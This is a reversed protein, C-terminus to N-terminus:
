DYLLYRVRRSRFTALDDHYLAEMEPVTKGSLLAAAVKESTLLRDIAQTQWQDPYLARLQRAIELGCRVPRLQDRDTVLIHVGACLQGQYKSANPTFRVPVFRVGSLAAHNLVSALGAADIWPAGIVEFPTDTGRGVSLNTTELLGIGPYLLAQNLNRMNPSPNVWLLGTADFLERRRWHKTPIVQLDLDLQLEARFMRALEGTTMGHRVPLPHFGVFSQRGADLVPGAVVVGGIPNPRDLVVFRIKADAAAQMAHGMTSIYTYFRTGIDQIDFVLTDIGALAEVTPIRTKGYLSYIPLGTRPDRQDPIHSVDLRGAIGHEPSLLAVLQLNAARHLLEATSVGARNIGTQNTILGVRRGSLAAFQQQELVDIGTLVPQTAATDVAATARRRGAAPRSVIAATAVTGIRGALRNVKGKGDPHVRNSLFIVILDYGPDIWLATGTFGGHGFARASALESRNTSYGTQLDWGLGRFGSSVANRRTMRQVGARSLIRVAGFRGQNLMMQAYVAVDDVTSFLGAHGAIGGLRFARPDHVEGQMWHGNRRETPAARRRLDPSPLYGTERMGLPKFIHQHSFEHVNKGSVRRVLEGLVLFGVDTYIFRTGPEVIPKVAFIREWALKPGDDFDALPNDPILGGQHTLLEFVTIEEKGNQGFEPVYKAVPDALRVQGREVLIMVSTATAMPKTLSAMDFVTETTMPLPTPKTQRHGYAKKWVIKDHRAVLVVCGPMRETALGGAVVADIRTLRQADIGVHEPPVEPLAAPLRAAIACLLTVALACRAAIRTPEGRQLAAVQRRKREDGNVPRSPPAGRDM